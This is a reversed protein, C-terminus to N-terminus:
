FPPTQALATLEAAMRAELESCLPPDLYLEVPAVGFAALRGVAWEMCAERDSPDPLTASPTRVPFDYVTATM